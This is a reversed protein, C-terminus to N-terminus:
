IVASAGRQSHSILERIGQFDLGAKVKNIVQSKKNHKKIVKKFSSVLNIILYVQQSTKRAIDIM